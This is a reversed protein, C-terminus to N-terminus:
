SKLYKNLYNYSKIREKNLVQGVRDFNILSLLLDKKNHYDRVDSILREDLKFINLLSVFRDLGREKNGVVIFQKKFIISFVCGHFSDTLVYETKDYNYLWQEVSIKSSNNFPIEGNVWFPTLGRDRAIENVLSIKEETRDLIYVLMNGKPDYVENEDILNIYNEYKLLLTPDLLQIAEVGFINKCIAVGSSERVSVRDFKRLLCTCEKLQEDSFEDINDVGFSAAYSIRRINAGELFSLCYEVPNVYLPRWVQDSGVVIADFKKSLKSNWNSIHYLHINKKIFKEINETIKKRELQYPAYLISIKKRLFIRKFIRKIIAFFWIVYYMKTYLPKTLIKVKHGQKELVTQLAYCQLIGGYNTHLPLTLIAVKM